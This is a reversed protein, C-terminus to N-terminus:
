EKYSAIKENYDMLSEFTEIIYNNIDLMITVNERASFDISEITMPRTEDADLDLLDGIDEYEDVNDDVMRIYARYTSINKGLIAVAHYIATIGTVDILVEGENWNENSDYECKIATLSTDLTITLMM